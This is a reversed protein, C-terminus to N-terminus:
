PHEVGETMPAGASPTASMRFPTSRAVGLIFASMRNEELAADATIKRIAPMDFTEVRRGLAYTM